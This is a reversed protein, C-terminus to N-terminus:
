VQWGGWGGFVISLQCWEGAKADDKVGDGLDLKANANLNFGHKNGAEMKFIAENKGNRWERAHMTMM